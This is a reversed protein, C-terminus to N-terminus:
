GATSKLDAGVLTAVLRLDQSPEEDLEEQLRRTYRRLFDRAQSRRGTNAFAKAVAVHAPEDFPDLMTLSHGALLQTESPVGSVLGQAIPLLEARVAAHVRVQASAAWDEYKLDSLFEGRVLDVLRSATAARSHSDEPKRLLSSVVRFEALDTTVLDANLQVGEATSFVYQPSEGERYGEDILRRLQFVTQNLSNVAASPDADPWLTDLVQDRTLGSEQSAVLLGLLLRIRKRAVVRGPSDWNGRHLAMPGFARVFVPEAFRNTLRRRVEMVDAGDINRLAAHTDRNANREMAALVASRSDLKLAPMQDAAAAAWFEPDSDILDTLFSVDRTARLMAGCHPALRRLWWRVHPAIGLRVADSAHAALQRMGSATARHEVLLLGIPIAGLLAILTSGNAAWRALLESATACQGSCKGIRHSALAIAVGTIPALRPDGQQQELDGLLYALEESGSGDLYLCEVLLSTIKELGSGLSERHEVLLPRLIEVAQRFNGKHLLVYARGYLAESSPKPWPRTRACASEAVAAARGVEGRMLLVQVLESNDAFPNTPSADWYRAARELYDLSEDLRGAYRLIVGLNHYAIATYQEFGATTSEVVVRMCEHIARDLSQLWTTTVALNGRLRIRTRLDDEPALRLGEEALDACLSVDGLNNYVTSLKSCALAEMRRDGKRAFFQRGRELAAIAVQWDGRICATEGLLLSLRANEAVTRRPLERIWEDLLPLRGTSALDEGYKAILRAAQPQLGARLYHHIAEPWAHSTEYFSAAHINLAAVEGGSREAVLRRELFDRFLGHYRFSGEESDLRYTFLGRNELEALVDSGDPV